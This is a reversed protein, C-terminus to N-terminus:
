HGGPYLRLVRYIPITRKSWTPSEAFYQALKTKGTGSIGTLIVFGKTKLATYFTALQHPTFHLGHAAFHASIATLGNVHNAPEELKENQPLSAIPHALYERVSDPVVGEFLPRTVRYADMIQDAIIEGGAIAESANLVQQIHTGWGQEPLLSKLVTLLEAADSPSRTDKDWVNVELNFNHNRVLDNLRQSFHDDYELLEVLRMGDRDEDYGYEAVDTLTPCEIMLGYTLQREEISRALFFQAQNDWKHRPTGTPAFWITRLRDGRAIYPTSSFSVGFERELQEQLEHWIHHGSHEDMKVYRKFDEETFRFAM